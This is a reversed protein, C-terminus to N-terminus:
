YSQRAPQAVTRFSIISSVGVLFRLFFFLIYSQISTKEHKELEFSLVIANWSEELTHANECLV